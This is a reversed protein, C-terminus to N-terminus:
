FPAQMVEPSAQYDTGNSDGGFGLQNTETIYRGVIVTPDVSLWPM